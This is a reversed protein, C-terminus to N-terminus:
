SLEKAKASRKDWLELKKLYKEIRENAVKAPIGYYGAQFFCIDYVKAFIDFNFEQPM